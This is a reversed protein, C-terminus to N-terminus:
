VPTKKNDAEYATKVKTIEAEVFIRSWVEWGKFRQDDTSDAVIEIIKGNTTTVGIVVARGEGTPDLKYAELLADELIQVIQDYKSPQYIMEEEKPIEDDSVALFEDSPDAPNSNSNQLQSDPM